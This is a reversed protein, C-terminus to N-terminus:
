APEPRLGKGTLSRCVVNTIMHQSFTPPKAQVTVWVEAEKDV